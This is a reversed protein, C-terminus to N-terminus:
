LACKPTTCRTAAACPRWLPPISAYMAEFPAMAAPQKLYGAPQTLVVISKRCGFDKMKAYPISDSVGGDLYLNREVGGNQLM